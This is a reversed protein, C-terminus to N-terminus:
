KEEALDRLKESARLLKKARRVVEYVREVKIELQESVEAAKHQQILILRLIKRDIRRFNNELIESIERFVMSGDCPDITPADDAIPTEEALVCKVEKHQEFNKGNANAFQSKAKFVDNMVHLRLYRRTHAASEFSIKARLVGVWASQYMDDFSCEVNRRSMERAVQECIPHLDKFSRSM